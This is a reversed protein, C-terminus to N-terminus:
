TDPTLTLTLTLTRTWTLAPTADPTGIGTHTGPDNDIGIDTGTDTGDTRIDTGIDTYHCHLKLAELSLRWKLVVFCWINTIKSREYRNPELECNPLNTVLYIISLNILNLRTPWSLVLHAARRHASFM